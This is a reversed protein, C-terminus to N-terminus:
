PWCFIDNPQEAAHDLQQQQRLRRRPARRIHKCQAAHAAASAAAASAPSPPSSRSASSASAAAHGHATVTREDEEVGPAAARGAKDGRTM